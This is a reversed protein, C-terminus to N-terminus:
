KDYYNYLAGKIEEPIFKFSSLSDENTNKNDSNKSQFATSFSAIIPLIKKLVSIKDTKGSLLDPLVSIATEISEDSVGIAKLISLADEMSISSLIKKFDQKKDYSLFFVIAILLLYDKKMANLM